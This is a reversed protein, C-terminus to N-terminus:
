RNKEYADYAFRVMEVVTEWMTRWQNGGGREGGARPRHSIPIEIVTYGLRKARIVLEADVFASSSRLKMDKLISRRMLRVSNIDHLTVGYLLRLLTNYVWSVFIRDSPDNRKVRWGLIIDANRTQPTLKELERPGVQYDGPITFLWEFKGAYYLEKITRGYGQNVPHTIVHLEGVKKGLTVLVTRTEDRSGDNIVIIEFTKAVRRGVEGAEAIVRAITAEDNYAPILFSITRDM